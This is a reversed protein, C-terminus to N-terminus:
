PKKVPRKGAKKLYKDLWIAQEWLTHHVSERARYGHSEAPLLVLRATGGLGKLAEFLRESQLTFTGPNSDAQGHIILVPEDIRDAAGFPSMDIYVKPAQWYNREEAQFGFPTLTRNYAGSRAIGTRFLDSHALLNATMFAGYSHGGIAIRDRDAVGLRVVEDVAARASAVLQPIYTDNPEVAGEGVIPMTPDDLVAYGLALAWLPTAWHVRAFRHPSDTVQGATDASKFETPYAWMLLPLPRDKGPRFGPPLYLMGTLAVGDPRRYKILRKDVRALQPSPHPFDTLVTPAGGALTRALFQPPDSVTERRTLVVAGADDLLDVPAEYYPAESRWLRDTRRTALALRDIFPRDGDNSAGDGFLLLTRGDAGTHLVFTGRATRRYLPQGPDGYRDESSRDWLVEKTPGAASPAVIWTRTKRDSWWWENVLALAGTAWQVGGYRLALQALSRPKATFPAPLCLLEDRVAAKRQPDGGDRAEAWCLEADADARWEFERPGTQVAAFDIPISDQLPLDAIEKELKGAPDWVAVTRPFRDEMERYSFPRHIAIVLIHKGDPSPAAHDVLAPRGIPTARGDLTVRVLQSTTHHEFLREDHPGKLADPFTRSPSKKGTAEHIVPGSPVESAVPEGGRGAPITKCLLSQGDPWWTCAQGTASSLRLDGLRRAQADAADVLWLGVGSATTVTFALRAGTPAWLAEAVRASAPLGRVPRTTKRDRLDLFSLRDSYNRRSPASTRPDLRLGALRREPAAVEVISPFPPQELLLLATHDPSVSAYPTLRADLMDAVAKPPSQYGPLPQAGAPTALAASLLAAALARLSARMGPSPVAAAPAAAPKV